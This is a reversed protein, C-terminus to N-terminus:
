PELYVELYMRLAYLRRCSIERASGKVKMQETKAFARVYVCGNIRICRCERQCLFYLEKIICRLTM